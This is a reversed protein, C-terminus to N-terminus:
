QVPKPEDLGAINSIFLDTNVKKSRPFADPQQDSGNALYLGHSGVM